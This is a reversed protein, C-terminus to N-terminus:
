IFRMGITITILAGVYAMSYLSLDIEKNCSSSLYGIAPSSTMGGSIICLDDKRNNKMVFNIFLYGFFMPLLTIIFGYLLWEIELSVINIRFGSKLGNAVLFLILGLNRYNNLSNNADTKYRQFIKIVIGLLFALCLIGGSGGLSFNIYPIKINGILYGIVVSLSLFGIYDINKENKENVTVPVSCCRRSDTRNHMLQVFILVTLVGFFYACGYGIFALESVIRESECAVSLGPSSTMAGCLIGVIISRDIDVDFITVINMVLFSLLVMFSGTCLAILNNKTFVRDASLGAILGIAAMFLATGFQSLLNMGDVIEDFSNSPFLIILLQGVVVSVILIASFGFSINHIKVKGLFFGVAIVAFLLCVCMM